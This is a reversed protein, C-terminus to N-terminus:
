MKIVGLTVGDRFNTVPSIRLLAYPTLQTRPSASPTLPVKPHGSLKPDPPLCLGAWLLTPTVQPWHEAALGGWAGDPAGAPAVPCMPVVTCPFGLLLAHPHWWGPRSPKPIINSGLNLLIFVPLQHTPSVPPTPSLPQLADVPRLFSVQPDLLVEPLRSVAGPGPRTLFKIQPFCM